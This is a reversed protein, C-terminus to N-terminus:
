TSSAGQQEALRCPICAYLGQRNTTGHEGSCFPRGCIACHRRAERRRGFFERCFWCEKWDEQVTGDQKDAAHEVRGHRAIIAM